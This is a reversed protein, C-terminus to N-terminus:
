LGRRLTLRRKRLTQNRKRTKSGGEFNQINGNMVASRSANNRFRNSQAAATGEEGAESPPVSLPNELLHAKYFRFMNSSLPERTFPNQKYKELQRASDNKYYRGYKFENHFNIM